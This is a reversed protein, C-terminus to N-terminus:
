QLPESGWYRSIIKAMIEEYSRPILHLFQPTIDQFDYIIHSLPKGSAVLDNIAERGGPIDRAIGLMILGQNYETRNEITRASIRTAGQVTFHKLGKTNRIIDALGQDGMKGCHALFLTQFNKCSALLNIDDLEDNWSVSLFELNKCKDALIEISRKTIIKDGELHTLHLSRNLFEILADESFNCGTVSLHTLSCGNNALLSLGKQSFGQVTLHTLTQCKEALLHRGSDTLENDGGTVILRKLEHPLLAVIEDTLPNDGFDLSTAHPFLQLLKKIQTETLGTPLRLSTILAHKHTPIQEFDATAFTGDSPNIEKLDLETLANWCRGVGAIQNVCKNNDPAGIGDYLEHNNDNLAVAYTQLEDWTMSRKKGIEQRTAEKGANRYEHCVPATIAREKLSLLSEVVVYLVDYLRPFSGSRQAQPPSSSLTVPLSPRSSHLPESM